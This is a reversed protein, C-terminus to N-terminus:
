RNPFNDPDIVFWVNKVGQGKVDGAMEDKFFYYLPYGRFTTQKTGDSRTLTQFDNKAVGQPAAVQERYYVPWKELCGGACSSLDAQDKAFWYLTMGKADTLYKGLNEQQVIRVAHHDAYAFPTLLVSLFVVILMKTLKKM